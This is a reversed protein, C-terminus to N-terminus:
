WASKGKKCTIHTYSGSVVIEEGDDNIGIRYKDNSMGIKMTGYKSKFKWITVIYFDSDEDEPYILKEDKLEDKEVYVIDYYVKKFEEFHQYDAFEVCYEYFCWATNFDTRDKSLNLARVDGMYLKDRKFWYTIKYLVDEIKNTDYFTLSSFRKFSRFNRDRSDVVLPLPEIKLITEPSDGWNGVRFDNIKEICSVFIEGYTNYVFTASDNQASLNYNCFLLIYLHINSLIKM